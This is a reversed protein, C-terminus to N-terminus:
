LLRLQQKSPRVIYNEPNDPDIQHPLHSILGRNQVAYLQRLLQLSDTNAAKACCSYAVMQFKHDDFIKILKQKLGPIRMGDPIQEILKVSVDAHDLLGALFHEHKLAHAILDDWLNKDHVEVFDVARKVSKVHDLLLRLARQHEGMRGLVYVMEDYMPPDTRELSELASELPVFTSWKLFRLLDSDEDDKKEHTTEAYLSVFREHLSKHDPNAFADPARDFLITLYWLQLDDELQETVAEIPFRDMRKVLVDACRDRSVRALDAVNDKVKAYLDRAELLDFVVNRDSLDDADLSLLNTLAREPDNKAVYLEALAEVVAARRRRSLDDENTNLFKSNQLSRVVGEVSSLLTDVSYIPPSKNNLGQRYYYYHFSAPTLDSPLTAAAWKRLTARLAEPDTALLRELVMDYVATALRPKSVPIEPALHSLAKHKDFVLIWYEWLTEADGLLRRCESAATTLDKEELLSDLRAKVLDQVRHRKLRHAHATAVVLAGKAKQPSKQLALDIVDDVDRVRAVVVDFPCAVYLRPPDGRMNPSPEIARLSEDLLRFDERKWSAAGSLGVASAPRFEDSSALSYDCFGCMDFGRMPLTEDSAIVGDDARRIQLEPRPHKSNQQRRPSDEDFPPPYGLLAVHDRDFPCIGCVVCDAKWLKVVEARADVPGGSDEVPQELKVRIRMVTDGWGLLLSREEGDPGTENKEWFLRCQPENEDGNSIVSAPKPVFSVPSSTDAHMIKVGRRNCWAIWPGAWALSAIAGDGQDVAVDKTTGFWGRCHKVLEGNAGGAFFYRERRQAYRPDLRVSLLPSGYAAEEVSDWDEATWQSSVKRGVVSVVGDDGCTAVHLGSADWSVDRVAEAHARMQVGSRGSGAVGDLIWLYGRDTGLAVLREFAAVKTVTEGERNQVRPLPLAYRLYQLM